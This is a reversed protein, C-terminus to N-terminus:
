FINNTIFNILLTTITGITIILWLAGLNKQAQKEKNTM